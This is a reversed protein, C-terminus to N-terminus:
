AFCLQKYPIVRDDPAIYDAGETAGQAEATGQEDRFAAPKKLGLHALDQAVQCSPPVTM